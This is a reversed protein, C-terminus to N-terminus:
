SQTSKAPNSQSGDIDIGFYNVANNYCIDRVMEGVLDMDYPMEGNEMDSGLLNCLVRRFYEHRPYSMFSRSDTLMGVFRSLLGMNSLTNIQREMGDKQDNFWWGSGFQIKGPIRGDQFNGIMTAVLENDGPNLIYIITKTLKQKRELADLFRSLPKAMDFDGISDYGTDPGLNNMARSNTNRLAGFHFQQTWEKEADMVALDILVASKFKLIDNPAPSKGSRLGDFIGAIESDRYAEAYPQELGHDSLRCGVEHFFDHRNRLAELFDAYGSVATDAAKELQGVWMNFAKPDEVAMAKDPRFAPLVKIGFTDDQAMMLHYKLDDTPDDTTCVVKVNMKKLISRTSFDETRLRESCADYIEKATDPNLLKDTIEFYRKLELHTWHYLPNRLTKPVTRAWAEFKEFDAANGTILREDIGNTRMARWKYHDGYLWIRTLNEFCIDEAIERPSLHCHYDFIPMQSAYEHFLVQAAKTYLLFDEGLFHPMM